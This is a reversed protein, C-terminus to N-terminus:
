RPVRSPLLRAIFHLGRGFILSAPWPYIEPDSVWDAVELQLQEFTRRWHSSPWYNEANAVGHRENGLRDMLRLISDSLLGDRTHDKVIVESRAVRQAERLLEAPDSTHHLVDVLLVSQFRGNGYPIRLGDFPELRIRASPRVLIDIGTVVIDPRRRRLESAVLGDGCGVDLVTAAPSLM